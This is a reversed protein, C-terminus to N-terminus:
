RTMAVHTPAGLFQSLIPDPEKNMTSVLDRIKCLFLNADLRPERGLETFLLGHFALHRAIALPGEDV